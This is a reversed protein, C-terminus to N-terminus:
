MKRLYFVGPLIVLSSQVVLPFTHGNALNKFHYHLNNNKLSM